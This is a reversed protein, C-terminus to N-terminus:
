AILSIVAARDLVDLDPEAQAWQAHDRGIQLVDQGEFVVHRLGVVAALTAFVASDFLFQEQEADLTAGISDAMALASGRSIAAFTPLGFTVVAACLFGVDLTGLLAAGATELAPGRRVLTNGVASAASFAADSAAATLTKLADVLPTSAEVFSRATQEALDKASTRIAHTANGPNNSSPASPQLRDNLM